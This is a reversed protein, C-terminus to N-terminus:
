TSKPPVVASTPIQAIDADLFVVMVFPGGAVWCGVVPEGKQPVFEAKLAKGVCPGHEEFLDIRGDPSEVTGVIAAHAANSVLLAAAVVLLHNKM